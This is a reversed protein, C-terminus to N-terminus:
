PRGERESFKQVQRAIWAARLLVVAGVAITLGYYALEAKLGALQPGIDGGIYHANPSAAELTFWRFATLLLTPLNTVVFYLGLLSFLLPALGSVPGGQILETGEIRAFRLLRDAMAASKRVLGYALFGYILVPAVALGVLLLRHGAEPPYDSSLQTGVQLMAALSAILSLVFLWGGGFM